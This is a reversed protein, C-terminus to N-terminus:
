LWVMYGMEYRHTLLSHYPYVRLKYYQLGALGPKLDLRFLTEGEPTMEGAELFLSEQVDLQHKTSARGILCEVVVDAPLLNGLQVAVTISM